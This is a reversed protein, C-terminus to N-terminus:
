LKERCEVLKVKLRQEISMRYLMWKKSVRFSGDENKTIDSSDITIVIPKATNTTPPKCLSCCGSL